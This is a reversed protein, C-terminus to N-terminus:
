GCHGIFISNVRYHLSVDFVDLYVAECFTPARKAVRQADQLLNSAITIRTDKFKTLYDVLPPTMMGSGVLLVKYKVQM